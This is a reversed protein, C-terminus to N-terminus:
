IDILTHLQTQHVADEGFSTRKKSHECLNIIVILKFLRVRDRVAVLNEIRGLNAKLVLHVIFPHFLCILHRQNCIDVAKLRKIVGISNVFM